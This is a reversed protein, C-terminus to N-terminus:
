MARAITPTDLELGAIYYLTQGDASIGLASRWTITGGELTRGWNVGTNATEPNIQGNYVIMEGNQRWAVMDASKLIDIGWKGMQVHGDTYMAVTALDKIPPLAVLGDAMAGYEGHRAKFGGNFTALLVGPRLDAAPITGTRGPQPTLPIPEL